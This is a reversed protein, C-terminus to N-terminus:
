GDRDGNLVNTLALEPTRWRGGVIRGVEKGGVYVIGTPVGHVNLRAAIPDESFQDPLGYYEFQIKSGELAEQVRIVRPVMQKCVSCKSNFFVRVRVPESRGKLQDVLKQNPSYASASRVYGPDYEKLAAASQPGTLSARAELALQKGGVTASFGTAGVEFPAKPTLAADALIDMTGDPRKALSMFGVAEVQRSRQNFLLPEALESSLVLIARARSSQYVEAGPVVEGDIKLAIEGVPEFDRLTADAEQATATGALGLLAAFGLAVSLFQRTSPRM